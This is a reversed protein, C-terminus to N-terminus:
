YKLYGKSSEAQHRCEILQLCRRAGMCLLACTTAVANQPHVLVAFPWRKLRNKQNDTPVGHYHSHNRASAPRDAFYERLELTLPNAKQDYEPDPSSPQRFHPSAVHLAPTHRGPSSINVKFKKSKM